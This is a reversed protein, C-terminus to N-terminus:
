GLHSSKKEKLKEATFAHGASTEKFFVPKPTASFSFNSNRSAKKLQAIARQTQAVNEVNVAGPGAASLYLDQTTSRPKFEVVNLVTHFSLGSVGTPSIESVRNSTAWSSTHAASLERRSKGARKPCTSAVSRTLALM